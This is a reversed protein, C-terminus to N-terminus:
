RSRIVRVGEKAWEKDVDVELHAWAERTECLITELRTGTVAEVRLCYRADATAAPAGAEAALGPQAAVVPSGAILMGLVVVFEKGAM